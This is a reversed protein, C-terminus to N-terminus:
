NAPDSLDYPQDFVDAWSVRPKAVPVDMEAETLEAAEAECDPWMAEVVERSLSPTDERIAAIERRAHRITARWSKSRLAPQTRWKLVHTM